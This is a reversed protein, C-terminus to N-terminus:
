NLYILGSSNFLARCLARLGHQEVLAAAAAREAPDPARGFALVFARQVQRPINEPSAEGLLRSAFSEAMNMTFSHNMLVLAQSPTTTAVRRSVSFACDPADYDTLM